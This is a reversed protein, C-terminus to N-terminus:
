LASLEITQSHNNTHPAHHPTKVTMLKSWKRPSFSFIKNYASLNIIETTSKAHFHNLLLLLFHTELTLLNSWQSNVYHSCEDSLDIYAIAWTVVCLVENSFLLNLDSYSYCQLCLTRYKLHIVIMDISQNWDSM